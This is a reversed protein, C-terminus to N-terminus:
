EKDLNKRVRSITKNIDGDIPISVIEGVLNPQIYGKEEVNEILHNLYWRAKYLDELGNKQYWRSLYKIVNATDVAQIGVLDECMWKIIDITEPGSGNQYHPPHNVMDAM